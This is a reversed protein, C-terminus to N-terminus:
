VNLIEKKLEAFDISANLYKKFDHVKAIKLKNEKVFVELDRLEMEEYGKTEVIFLRTAIDDQM